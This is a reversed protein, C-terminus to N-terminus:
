RTLHHTPTKTPKPKWPLKTLKLHVVLLLLGRMASLEAVGIADDAMKANTVANDSVVLSQLLKGNSNYVFWSM